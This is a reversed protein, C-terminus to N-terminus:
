ICICGTSVSFVTLIPYPKRSKFLNVKGCECTWDQYYTTGAFGESTNTQTAKKMCRECM